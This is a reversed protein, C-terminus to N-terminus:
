PISIYKGNKCLAKSGGGMQLIRGEKCRSAKIEPAINYGLVGPEIDGGGNNNRKPAPKHVKPKSAPKHARPKPAPKPAPKPPRYEFKTSVGKFLSPNLGAFRSQYKVRYLFAIFAERSISEGPRFSGDAWGTTIEMSRLWQIDRKFPSALTDRFPPASFPDGGGKTVSMRRLFAAMAERSIPEGPRFSGDAWGRAGNVARLWCIEKSFATLKSNVDRFCYGSGYFKPSGFARYLFAAAAERSIPALPRFTGDAWGRVVGEAAMQNIPREFLYGEPVDSFQLPVVSGVLLGVSLVLSM